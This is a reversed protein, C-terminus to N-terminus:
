HRFRYSLKVATDTLQFDLSLGDAAFSYGHLHILYTIFELGEVLLPISEPCLPIFLFGDKRFELSCTLLHLVILYLSMIRFACAVIPLNSLYSIRLHRFSLCLYIFECCTLSFDLIRYDCFGDCRFIYRFHNRFPCPNRDATHQFAFTLFEKPHFGFQVLPNHSLIHGNSSYRISDTAGTRPQLILFSRDPGEEEHSSGTYSLGFQGLSKCFKKEIILVHHRADIHAFILLTM